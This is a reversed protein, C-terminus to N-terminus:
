VQNLDSQNANTNDPKEIDYFKIWYFNNHYVAGLEEKSGFWDVYKIWGGYPAGAPQQTSPDIPNQCIGYDNLEYWGTDLQVWGSQAYGAENFYYWYEGIKELKNVPYTGDDYQYWWGKDNNKWDAAYATMSFAAALLAAVLFLQVKRM